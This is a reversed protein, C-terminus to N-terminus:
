PQIPAGPWIVSARADFGTPGAPPRGVQRTLHEGMWRGVLHGDLFIHGVEPGAAQTEPRSRESSQHPMGAAPSTRALVDLPVPLPVVSDVPLASRRTEMRWERRATARPLHTPRERSDPSSGRPQTVGVQPSRMAPAALASLQAPGLQPLPASAPTISRALGALESVGLGRAAPTVPARIESREAAIPALSALTPLVVRPPAIPAVGRTRPPQVRPLPIPAASVSTPALPSAIPAPRAPPVPTMSQSHPAVNAPSPLQASHAPPVNARPLEFRLKAPQEPALTAPRPPANTAIPLSPARPATSRASGAPSSSRAPVVSPTRMQAPIPTGAPQAAPMSLRPADRPQAQREGFAPAADSHKPDSRPPSASAEPGEPAPRPQQKRKSRSSAPAEALGGLQQRGEAALRRLDLGAAGVATHSADRLGAFGRMSHALALNVNDLDRRIIALGESVGNELALTIGITYADEM